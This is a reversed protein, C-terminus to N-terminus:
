LNASIQVVGVCKHISGNEEKFDQNRIQAVQSNLKSYVFVRDSLNQEIPRSGKIVTSGEQISSTILDDSTGVFIGSIVKDTASQLLLTEFKWEYAGNRYKSSYLCSCGNEINM